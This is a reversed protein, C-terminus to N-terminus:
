NVLILVTVVTYNYNFAEDKELRLQLSDLPTNYHDMHAQASFHLIWM